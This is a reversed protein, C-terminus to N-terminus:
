LLKFLVVVLVLLFCRALDSDTDPARIAQYDLSIQFRDRDFTFVHAENQAVLYNFEFPFEDVV